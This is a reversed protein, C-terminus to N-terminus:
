SSRETLRRHWNIITLSPTKSSSFSLRTHLRTHTGPTLRFSEPARSVKEAAGSDGGVFFDTKRRLFGFFTNVLQQSFIFACNLFLQDCLFVFM